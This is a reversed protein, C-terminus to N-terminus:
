SNLPSTVSATGQQFTFTLSNSKGQISDAVTIASGGTCATAFTSSGGQPTITCETTTPLEISIQVAISAPLNGTLTTAAPTGLNAVFDAAKLVASSGASCAGTSTNYTAGSTSCYNLAVKLGKTATAGAANTLINDTTGTVGFLLAAADLTGSDTTLTVYRNVTQGPTMPGIAVTNNVGNGDSAVTLTLSGASVSQATANSASASLVTFVGGASLVVGGLGATLAVMKIPSSLIAAFSAGVSM